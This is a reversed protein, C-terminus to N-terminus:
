QGPQLSRKCNLISPYTKHAVQFKSLCWFWLIKVANKACNRNKMMLPNSTTCNKVSCLPTNIHYPSYWCGMKSFFINKLGVSRMFYKHNLYGQLTFYYCCNTSPINRHVFESSRTLQHLNLVWQACYKM